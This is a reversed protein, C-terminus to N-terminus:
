RWVQQLRCHDLMLFYAGHFGGLEEDRRKLFRWGVGFDDAVL